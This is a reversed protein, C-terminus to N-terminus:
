RCVIETLLKDLAAKIREFGARKYAAATRALKVPNVHHGDVRSAVDVGTLDVRGLADM